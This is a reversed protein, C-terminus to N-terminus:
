EMSRLWYHIIYEQRPWERVFITKQYMKNEPHYENVQDVENMLLLDPLKILVNSKASKPVILTLIYKWNQETGTNTHWRKEM